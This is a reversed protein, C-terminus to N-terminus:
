HCFYRTQSAETCGEADELVAPQVEMEVRIVDLGAM